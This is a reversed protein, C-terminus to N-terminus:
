STLGFEQLKEKNHQKWATAIAVGTIKDDEWTPHASKLSAKINRIMDEKGPPSVEAILTEYQIEEISEKILTKIYPKLLNTRM